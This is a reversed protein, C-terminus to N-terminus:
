LPPFPAYGDQDWLRSGQHQECQLIVKRCLVERWEYKILTKQFPNQEPEFAVTITPAHQADGFGTGAAEDRSGSAKGQASSEASPAAPANKKLLEYRSQPRTKERYVAVAIVGMSSSDKFTRMAYSDQLDSFFFNHVTNQDIRWGDYRGQERPEVIYMTETNKLDSREGSIINRGDVAIVVGVRDRTMNRIVIGYNRNKHAELYQKIIRTGGKRYERYPIILLTAGTDSVIEIRVEEPAWGRALSLSAAAAMIVTALVLALAKNM